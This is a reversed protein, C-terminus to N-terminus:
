RGASFHTHAADLDVALGRFPRTGSFAARQVQGAGIDIRHAATVPHHGRGDVARCVFEIHAQADQWGFRARQFVPGWHM